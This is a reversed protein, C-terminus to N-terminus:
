KNKLDKELNLIKQTTLEKIKETSIMVKKTIKNLRNRYIGSYISCVIWICILVLDIIVIIHDNM